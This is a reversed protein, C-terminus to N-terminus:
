LRGKSFSTTAVGTVETNEERDCEELLGKTSEYYNYQANM